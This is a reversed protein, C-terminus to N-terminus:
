RCGGGGGGGGGSSGGSSASPVIYTAVASYVSSAVYSTVGVSIGVNTTTQTMISIENVISDAVNSSAYEEAIKIAKESVGLLYAWKIFDGWVIDATHPQENITTFDEIWNKLGIVQKILAMEEDTCTEKKKKIFRIVLLVGLLCLIVDAPFIVWSYGFVRM